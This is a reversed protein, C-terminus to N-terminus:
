LTLFRNTKRCTFMFPSPRIFYTSIQWQHSNYLSNYSVFNHVGSLFTYDLQFVTHNVAM